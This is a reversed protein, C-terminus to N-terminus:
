QAGRCTGDPRVKGPPCSADQPDVIIDDDGCCGESCIGNDCCCEGPLCSNYPQHCSDTGFQAGSSGTWVCEELVSDWSYAEGYVAQCNTEDTYMVPVDTEVVVWDVYEPCTPDCSTSGDDCTYVPANCEGCLQLGPDEPDCLYGYADETLDLDQRTVCEGEGTAENTVQYIKGIGCAADERFKAAGLETTYAGTDVCKGEAESWEQGYGCDWEEYGTSTDLRDAIAEPTWDTVADMELKEFTTVNGMVAEYWRKKEADITTLYEGLATNLDEELTTEIGKKETKFGSGLTKAKKYAEILVDEAEGTGEGSRLVAGSTGSALSAGSTLSGYTLAESEGRMGTTYDELSRSTELGYDEGASGGLLKGQGYLKSELLQQARSDAGGSTDYRSLKEWSFPDGHQPDYVDGIESRFTEEAQQMVKPDFSAVYGAFSSEGFESDSGFFTPGMISKYFDQTHQRYQLDTADAGIPDAVPDGFEGGLFAEWLRTYNEAM